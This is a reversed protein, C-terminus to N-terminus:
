LGSLNKDYHLSKELLTFAVTPRPSIFAQHMGKAKLVNAFKCVQTRLEKYTITSMDTPDNGERCCTVLDLQAAQPWTSILKSPLALEIPIASVIHYRWFSAMALRLDDPGTISSEGISVNDTYMYLMALTITNIPLVPSIHM